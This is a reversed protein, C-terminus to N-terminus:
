LLCPPAYSQWIPKSTQGPRTVPSANVMAEATLLIRSVYLPWGFWTVDHTHPGPEYNISVKNLYYIRVAGTGATLLGASFLVFLSIRQRRSLHLKRVLLMPLVSAYIDSVMSAAASLLVPVRENACTFPENYTPSYFKWYANLPRCVLMLELLLASVYTATFAIAVWTLKIFWESNSGTSIRRYVLLISVKTCGTGLLFFFENLWASLRVHELNAFPVDWLHM